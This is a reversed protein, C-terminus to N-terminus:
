GGIAPRVRKDDQRVTAKELEKLRDLEMALNAKVKETDSVISIISTLAQTRGQLMRLVENGEQCTEMDRRILDRKRRVATLFESFGPANKLVLVRDALGLDGQIKRIKGRLEAIYEAEQEQIPRFQQSEGSKAEPSLPPSLFPGEPLKTM